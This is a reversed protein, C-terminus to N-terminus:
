PVLPLQAMLQSGEGPVSYIELQGGLLQTREHMGKLGSTKDSALAAEPIFGAGEDEVHLQLLSGQLWICVSVEQVGAHRAVNTIAEQVLRYATTEVAPAFRDSLGEHRFHVQVRTQRTFREFLWFLAPLLGLHDLMAPRLDFSLERVKALLDDVAVRANQLRARAGEGSLDPGADLIFQLGTLSQGIEDHLERAVHRREEEQVRLIQRTLAQVRESYKRLQQEAQKRDTIEVVVATVGVVTGSKSRLPSYNVLWDRERGPEALTSGHIEVNLVPEGSDMVCRYYPEVEDALDSVIERITRGIHEGAPRGNMAALHENIRVYRLNQDVFCLGVPAYQYIQDLEALQSSVQEKQLKLEEEALKRETIDRAIGAAGTIRGQWDRIPSITLAVDIIQGDKRLRITEYHEIGRGQRLEEIIRFEEDTCQPPVILFISHKQVEEATYGFIREAGRNWSVIRGDLTASVIADDTSTVIAALQQVVEEARKRETIDAVTGITRVPHRETAIGAFSTRSLINVWRVSDDRLVIRHDIRYEGNGAPDHARQIAAAVEVRDEPLILEIYGPLSPLRDDWDVIRRMRPSWYIADTSHDHEFIGLDAASIALSLREENERLAVEARKRETIDVVVNVAGFLKGFEDRLPIAHALVTFRAGDLREVVIERELYAEGTRLALAMWCQDHAIASGDTAYLKFSGCFRDAPDNLKPVRGWLQLARQNYYTILGDPDCTYAGAPLSEMLHRLRGESARLLDQTRALADIQDRLHYQRQRARVAARLASVLTTMRAPRELVMVNGLLDMAAGAVPLDAGENALLLVPLDSWPPQRRLVEFLCDPPDGALVDETMLVADAGEGLEQCLCGLDHCVHCTLGAQMLITRSLAEDAATPVLVLVRGKGAPKATDNM